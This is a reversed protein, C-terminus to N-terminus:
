ATVYVGQANLSCRWNPWYTQMQTNKRNNIPKAAGKLPKAFASGTEEYTFRICLLNRLNKGEVLHKQYYCTKPFYWNIIVRRYKVM